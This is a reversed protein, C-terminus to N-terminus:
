WESVYEHRAEKSSALLAVSCSICDDAASGFTSPELEATATANLKPLITSVRTSNHGHVNLLALHGCNEFGEVTAERTIKDHNNSHFKM